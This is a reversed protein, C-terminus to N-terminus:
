DVTAWAHAQARSQLAVAIASALACAGSGLAVPLWPGAIGAQVLGASALSAAAFVATMWPMVPTRGAAPM